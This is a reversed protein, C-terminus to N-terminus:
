WILCGGFCLGGLVCGWTTYRRALKFKEDRILFDLNQQRINYQNNQQWGYPQNVNSYNNSDDRFPQNNGFVEKDGNEYNISAIDSINLVYIPGNQNSWLKYQVERDGIEIVKSVITSGDNKVIVDQAYIYNGWFTLFLILLNRM